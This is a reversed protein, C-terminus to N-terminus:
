PEDNSIEGLPWASGHSYQLADTARAPTLYLKGNATKTRLTPWDAAGPMQTLTSHPITLTLEDDAVSWTGTAQEHAYGFYSLVATGDPYITLETDM